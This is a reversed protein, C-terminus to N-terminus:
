KRTMCSSQLVPAPPNKWIPEHGYVAVASRSPLAARSVSLAIRTGLPRNHVVGIHLQVEGLAFGGRGKASSTSYFIGSEIGSNLPYSPQAFLIVYRCNIKLRAIM